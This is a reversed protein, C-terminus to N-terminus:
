LVSLTCCPIPPCRNPTYCPKCCNLNLVCHPRICLLVSSARQELCIIGEALLYHCCLHLHLSFCVSIHPALSCYISHSHKHSLSPFSCLSCQTNTKCIRYFYFFSFSIATFYIHMSAGFFILSLSLHPLHLSSVIVSLFSLLTQNISADRHGLLQATLPWM